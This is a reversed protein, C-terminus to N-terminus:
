KRKLKENTEANKGHAKSIAQNGSAVAGFAALDILGDVCVLAAGGIFLFAFCSVFCFIFSLVVSDAISDILLLAILDVLINRIFLAGGSVLLDTDMFGLGSVSNCVLVVTDSNM